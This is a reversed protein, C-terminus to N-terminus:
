DLLMGISKNIKNKAGTSKNGKNLIIIIIKTDDINHVHVFHTFRDSAGFYKQSPQTPVPYPIQIM